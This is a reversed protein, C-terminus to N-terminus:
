ESVIIQASQIMVGKYNVQPKIIQIITGSEATSDPDFTPEAKMGTHYPKGIMEVIEYGNSAFNDKISLIARKLFNLGRTKEDMNSLNREMSILRDAITLVLSHDIPKTTDETEKKREENIISM